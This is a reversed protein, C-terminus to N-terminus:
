FSAAYQHIADWIITQMIANHTILNFLYFRKSYVKDQISHYSTIIDSYVADKFFTKICDKYTRTSCQWLIYIYWSSIQATYILANIKQMLDTTKIDTGYSSFAHWQQFSLFNGNYTATIYRHVRCTRSNTHTIIHRNNITFRNILHRCQFPLVFLGNFFAYM